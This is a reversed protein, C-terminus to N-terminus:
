AHIRQKATGAVIKQRTACAVILDFAVGADVRRVVRAGESSHRNDEFGDAPAAAGAQSGAAVGLAVNEVIDLVEGARIMVVAQAAVLEDVDKVAPIAIVREGAAPAIIDQDTAATSVDHDAVLIGVGEGIM